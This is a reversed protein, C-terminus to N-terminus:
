QSLREIRALEEKLTEPYTKRWSLHDLYDVKTAFKTSLVNIEAQQKDVERSLTVFSALIVCFVIALFIDKM